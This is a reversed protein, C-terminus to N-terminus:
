LPQSDEKSDSIPPEGCELPLLPATGGGLIMPRYTIGELQGYPVFPLQEMRIGKQQVIYSFFDWHAKVLAAMQRPGARLLLYCAAPADLLLRWLIRLYKEPGTLNEWLLYLSNRFNYYVKRPSEKALSGGGVHYVVSRPEYGIHWGARQLRWCLDIEEMHMFYYPKFLLGRQSEQIAATRVVFAAGGGWFIRSPLEYQSKDEEGRGRCTPYGWPDLFGGAAGAYEFLQRDSWSRIKPQLVALRPCAELRHILPSLWTPPVEVDSNLLAVYPVKHGEESFFRQYGGAYGENQEYRLVRVSPFQNQIWRHLPPTSANDIVWVTFNPYETALVTPLFRDLWERGGHALIAVYVPPM